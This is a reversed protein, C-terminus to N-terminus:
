CKELYEEVNDEVFHKFFCCDTGTCFVVVLARFLNVKLFCQINQVKKRSWVRGSFNM